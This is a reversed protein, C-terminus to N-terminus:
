LIKFYFLILGFIGYIRQNFQYIILQKFLICIQFLINQSKSLPFSFNNILGLNNQHRAIGMGTTSLASNGIRM